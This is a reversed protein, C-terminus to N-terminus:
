KKLIAHLNEDSMPITRISNVGYYKAACKNIWHDKRVDSEKIGYIGPFEPIVLDTEGENIRRLIYAERLDWLTARQRYAPVDALTLWAARLPYLATLGLLVAAILLNNRTSDDTQYQHM